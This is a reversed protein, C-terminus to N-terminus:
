NVTTNSGNLGFGSVFYKGSDLQQVAVGNGFGDGTIFLTGGSVSVAVNGALLARNELGEVNLKRTKRMTSGKRRSGHLDPLQPRVSLEAVVPSWLLQWVLDVTQYDM